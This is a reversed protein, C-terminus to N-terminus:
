RVGGARKDYEALMQRLYDGSSTVRGDSFRILYPMGSISSQSACYRIFDEASRVRSGANRLKLRLHDAAAKGDYSTDNRIFQANPLSQITAILYEIRASQTPSLDAAQACLLAGLLFLTLAPILRRIMIAPPLNCCRGGSLRGGILSTRLPLGPREPRETNM